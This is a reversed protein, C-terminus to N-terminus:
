RTGRIVKTAVLANGFAEWNKLGVRSEQRTFGILKPYHRRRM